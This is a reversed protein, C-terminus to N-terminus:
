KRVVLTEYRVTRTGKREPWSITVTLKVLNYENNDPYRSAAVIVHNGKPLAPDSTDSGATLIADMSGSRLEDIKGQAINRAVSICRARALTDQGAKSATIAALLGISLLVVAVLVEVLTFGRKSSRM